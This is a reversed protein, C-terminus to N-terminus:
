ILYLMGHDRKNQLMQLHESAGHLLGNTGKSKNNRQQSNTSTALEKSGQSWSRRPNVNMRSDNEQMQTKGEILGSEEKSSLNRDEDSTVEAELQEFEYLDREGSEESFISESVNVDLKDHGHNNSLNDTKDITNLYDRYNEEDDEDHSDYDNEQGEDDEDRSNYDHENSERRYYDMYKNTPMEQKSLDSESSMAPEDNMQISTSRSVEYESINLEDEDGYVTDDIQHYGSDVTKLDGLTQNGRFSTRVTSDTGSPQNDFWIGDDDVTIDACGFLLVITFYYYQFNLSAIWTADDPM